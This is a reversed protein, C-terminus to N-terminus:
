VEAGRQAGAQRPDAQGGVQRQHRDVVQVVVYSGGQTKGVRRGAIIGVVLGAVFGEQDGEQVQCDGADRQEGDGVGAQEVVVKSL